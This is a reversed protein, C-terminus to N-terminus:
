CNNVYVSCGYRIIIPYSGDSAAQGVFVDSEGVVIKGIKGQFSRVAAEVTRSVTLAGFSGLQCIDSAVFFAPLEYVSFPPHEFLRGM